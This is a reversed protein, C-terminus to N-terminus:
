LKGLIKLLFVPDRDIQMAGPHSVFHQSAAGQVAPEKWKNLTYTVNTRAFLSHQKASDNFKMACLYLQCQVMENISNTIIIQDSKTLSGVQRWWDNYWHHFYACLCLNWLLEALINNVLYIRCEPNYNQFSRIMFYEKKILVSESLETEQIFVRKLASIKLYASSSTIIETPLERGM